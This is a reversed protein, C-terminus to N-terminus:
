DRLYVRAPMGEIEREPAFARIFFSEWSRDVCFSFDTPKSSTSNPTPTYTLIWNKAQSAKEIWNQPVAWNERAPRDNLTSFSNLDRRVWGHWQRHPGSQADFYDIFTLKDCIAKPLRRCRPATYSRDRVQQLTIENYSTPSITMKVPNEGHTRGTLSGGPTMRLLEVNRFLWVSSLHTDREEEAFVPVVQVGFFTRGPSPNNKAPCAQPGATSHNIVFRVVRTSEECRGCSSDCPQLERRRIRYTGSTGIASFKGAGTWAVTGECTGAFYRELSSYVEFRKETPPRCEDSRARWDTDDAYRLLNAFNGRVVSETGKMLTLSVVAVVRGDVMVAGGSMSDDFLESTELYEYLEGPGNKKEIPIPKQVLEWVATALGVYHLTTLQALGSPLKWDNSPQTCLFKGIAGDDQRTIRFTAIDSTKSLHESGSILKALKLEGGSAYEVKFDRIDYNDFDFAHEVVHRATIAYGDASILFGTGRVDVAEGTERSEARYSIRLLRERFYDERDQASTPLYLQPDILQASAPRGTLLVSSLLAFISWRM